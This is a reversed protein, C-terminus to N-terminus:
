HSLYRGTFLGIEFFFQGPYGKPGPFGPLGNTGAGGAQGGIHPHLNNM